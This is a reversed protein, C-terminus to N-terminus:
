NVYTHRPKPCRYRIRLEEDSGVVGVVVGFGDDIIGGIFIFLLSCEALDLGDDMIVTGTPGVCGWCNKALKPWVCAEVSISSVM